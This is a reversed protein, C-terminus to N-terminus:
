WAWTSAAYLFGGLISVLTFCLRTSPHDKYAIALLAMVVALLAFNYTTSEHM